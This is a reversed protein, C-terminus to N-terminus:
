QKVLGAVAERLLLPILTKTVLDIVGPRQAPDLLALVFVLGVVFFLFAWVTQDQDLTKM